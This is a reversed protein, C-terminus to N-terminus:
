ATVPRGDVYIPARGDEPEFIEVTLNIQQFDSEAHFSFDGDGALKVEPFFYDFQKGDPNYSIYRLQGEIETEGAVIADRSHATINFTVDVDDGTAIGGGAVITIRGLDADLTYDTNLVMTDEGVEVVVSAVKRAGSPTQLTTGLQYTGGQVVNAFSSTVGTASAVTLASASGLFYYALNSPKITDTTIKGTRTSALVASFDKFRRGRRSSVHEKKEQATNVSWGPCNGLELEPGHSGDTLKQAFWVEGRSLILNEPNEAM